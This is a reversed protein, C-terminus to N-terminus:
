PGICKVVQVDGSDIWLLIMEYESPYSEGAPPPIVVPTVEKSPFAITENIMVNNGYFIVLRGRYDDNGYNYIHIEANGTSVNTYCYIVNLTRSNSNTVIRNVQFQAEQYLSQAKVFAM